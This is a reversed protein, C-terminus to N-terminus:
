EETSETVEETETEEIYELNTYSVDFTSLLTDDVMYLNSDGEVMLYYYGMIENYNGILFKVASGDSLTLSITKQPVDLGYTELSEYDTFYEQALLSATVSLMNEVLAEDVDFETMQSYNWVEESKVFDYEEENYNYSFAVIENYDVNAVVITEEEDKEEQADNYIGLTFYSIVLFGLFVVM